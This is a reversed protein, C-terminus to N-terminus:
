NLMGPVRRLLLRLLPFLRILDLSILLTAVLLVNKTGCGINKEGNPCLYSACYDKTQAYAQASLIALLISVTLTGM